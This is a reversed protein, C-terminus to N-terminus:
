GGKPNQEYTLLEYKGLPKAWIFKLIYEMHYEWFQVALMGRCPAEHDLSGVQSRRGRWQTPKRLRLADSTDVIRKKAVQSAMPFVILGDCKRSEYIYVYMCYM